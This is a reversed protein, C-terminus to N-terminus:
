KSHIIGVADLSEGMIPTATATIAMLSSSWVPKCDAKERSLNKAAVAIATSLPKPSTLRLKFAEISARMTPLNEEM